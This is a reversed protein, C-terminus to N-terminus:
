EGHSVEGSKGTIPIKEGLYTPEPKWKAMFYDKVRALFERKNRADQFTYPQQQDSAAGLAKINFQGALYLARFLHYYQTVVLARKVGFIYEARYMSEYTSFGAHDCFIDKGPVGAKLCYNLMVHIENHQQQGNDGTLLLKPVLGDQYMRIALDLRDKLMKTPTESNEIGAGLVIACEPDLEEIRAQEEETILITQTTQNTATDRVGDDIMRRNILYTLVAAAAAIIVIIIILATIVRTAKKMDGTGKAYCIYTHYFRYTTIIDYLFRM